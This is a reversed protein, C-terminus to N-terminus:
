CVAASFAGPRSGRMPGCLISTAGELVFGDDSPDSYLILGAAGRAQAERAKIGRFSRGYRAVVIRGRVSIGLSDLVRYDAKLGYNVYVVDGSTDANASYANFPAIQRFSSGPGIPPETLTLPQYPAHPGTAVWARVVEPQPICVTYTKVWTELGASDLKALVYDRTAAQAPTGAMHPSASLERTMIRARASDPVALLEHELTREAGAAPQSFGTQASAPVCGLLLGVTAGTARWTRSIHQATAVPRKLTM